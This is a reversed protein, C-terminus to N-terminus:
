LGRFDLRASMVKGEEWDAGREARGTERFPLELSGPSWTLIHPQGQTKEKGSM